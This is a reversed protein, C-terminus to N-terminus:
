DFFVFRIDLHGATAVGISLLLGGPTGTHDIFALFFVAVYGYQEVMQIFFDIM